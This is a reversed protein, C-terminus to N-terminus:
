GLPDLEFLLAQRPELPAPEPVNVRLGGVEGHVRSLEEFNLKLFQTFEGSAPVGLYERAFREVTRDYDKESHSHQYFRGPFRRIDGNFDPNMHYLEHFVTTVKAKFGLNQFRPLCFYIVYLIERGDHTLRPMEYYSDDGLRGASLGGQFKLPMLKAMLGHRKRNRSRSIGVAIREVDIHAFADCRRSIDNILSLMHRPYDFM